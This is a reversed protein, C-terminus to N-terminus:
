LCIRGLPQKKSWSEICKEVKLYHRREEFQQREHKPRVRTKKELTATVGQEFFGQWDFRGGHLLLDCHYNLQRADDATVIGRVTCEHILPALKELTHRVAAVSEILARMSQFAVLLNKRNVNDIIARYYYVTKTLLLTAILRGSVNLNNLPLTSPEVIEAPNDNHYNRLLDELNGVIKPLLLLTKKTAPSFESEVDDDFKFNEIMM